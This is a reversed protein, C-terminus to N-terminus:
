RFAGEALPKEQQKEIEMWDGRDRLLKITEANLMRVTAKKGLQRQM